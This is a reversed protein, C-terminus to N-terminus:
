CFWLYASVLRTAGLLPTVGRPPKPILLPADTSGMSRLRGKPYDSVGSIIDEITTVALIFVVYGKLGYLNKLFM